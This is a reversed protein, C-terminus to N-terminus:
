LVSATMGNFRLTEIYPTEVIVPVSVVLTKVMVSVTVVLPAM